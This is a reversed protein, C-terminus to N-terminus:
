HRFTQRQQFAQELRGSDVVDALRRLSAAYLSPIRRHPNVRVATEKDALPTLRLVTRYPGALWPEQM